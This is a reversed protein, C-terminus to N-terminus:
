IKTPGIQWRVPTSSFINTRTKQLRKKKKELLFKSIDGGLVLLASGRVLLQYFVM